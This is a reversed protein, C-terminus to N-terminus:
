VCDYLSVIAVGWEPGIYILENLVKCSQTLGSRWNVSWSLLQKNRLSNDLLHHRTHCQLDAFVVVRTSSLRSSSLIGRPDASM